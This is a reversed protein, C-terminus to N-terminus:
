VGFGQVELGKARFRFGFGCSGIGFHVPAPPPALHGELHLPGAHHRPM